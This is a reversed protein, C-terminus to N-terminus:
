SCFIGPCNKQASLASIESHPWFFPSNEDDVFVVDASAHQGIPQSHVAITHLLGRLNNLSFPVRGVQDQTVPWQWFLPKDFKPALAIHRTHDHQAGGFAAWFLQWANDAGRHFVQEVLDDDQSAPLAAGLFPEHAFLENGGLANPSLHLTVHIPRNSIKDSCCIITGDVVFPFGKIIM